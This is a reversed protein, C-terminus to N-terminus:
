NNIARTLYSPFSFVIEVKATMDSNAQGVYLCHYLFKYFKVNTKFPFLCHMCIGWGFGLFIFINVDGGQLHMNELAVCGTRIALM